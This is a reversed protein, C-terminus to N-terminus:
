EIERQLTTIQSIFIGGLDGTDSCVQTMQLQLEKINMNFMNVQDEYELDMSTWQENIEAIAQNTQQQATSLESLKANLSSVRSKLGNFYSGLALLIL